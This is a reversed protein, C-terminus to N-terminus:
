TTGEAKEETPTIRDDYVTWEIRVERGDPMRIRAAHHDRHGHFRECVLRSVAPCEHACITM